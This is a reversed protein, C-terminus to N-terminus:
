MFKLSYAESVEMSFPRPIVHGLVYLGGQPYVGVYCAGWLVCSVQVKKLDNTFDILNLSSRPNAVM